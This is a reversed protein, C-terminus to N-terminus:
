LAEYRVARDAENQDNAVVCQLFSHEVYFYSNVKANRKISSICKFNNYIFLTEEISSKLTLCYISDKDFNSLYLTHVKYGVISPPVFNAIVPCEGNKALRLEYKSTAIKAKEVTLGNSPKYQVRQIKEYHTLLKFNDVIYITYYQEDFLNASIETDGVFNVHVKFLESVIYAFTYKDSIYGEESNEIIFQEAMYRFKAENNMFFMEASKTPVDKLRSVFSRICLQAYPKECELCKKFHLIIKKRLNMRDVYSESGYIFTSFCAMLTDKEVNLPYISLKNNFKDKYEEM